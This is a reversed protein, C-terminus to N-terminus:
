IGFFHSLACAPIKMPSEARVGQIRGGGKKRIEPLIVLKANLMMSFDLQYFDLLLM